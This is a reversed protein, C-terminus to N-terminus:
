YGFQTLIDRDKRNLKRFDSKPIKLLKRVHRIANKESIHFSTQVKKTMKGFKTKEFPIKPKLPPKPPKPPKKKVRFKIPISAERKQKTPEPLDKQERFLKLFDTKRMGLDIDQLEKLTQTANLNPNKQIFEKIQEKKDTMNKIKFLQYTIFHKFAKLFFPIQVNYIIKFFFHIKKMKIM